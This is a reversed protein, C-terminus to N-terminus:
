EILQEQLFKSNQFSTQDYLYKKKKKIKKVEYPGM